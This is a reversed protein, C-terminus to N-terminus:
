SKPRNNIVLVLVIVVLAGVITWVWMVGGAWGNMWDSTQNMM